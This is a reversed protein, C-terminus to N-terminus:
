GFLEGRGWRETQTDCASRVGLRTVVVLTQLQLAHLGHRVQLGQLVLVAGGQLPALLGHLLGVEVLSHSGGLGATGGVGARGKGGM